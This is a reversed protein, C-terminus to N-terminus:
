DTPRVSDVHVGGSQPFLSLVDHLEVEPLNARLQKETLIPSSSSRDVSPSICARRCSAWPLFAFVEYTRTNRLMPCRREGKVARRSLRRPSIDMREGWPAPPYLSVSCRMRPVRRAM